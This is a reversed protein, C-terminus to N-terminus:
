YIVHSQAVTPRIITIIVLLFKRLNLYVFLMVPDSFYRRGRAYKVCLIETHNLSLNAIVTLTIGGNATKEASISGENTVNGTARVIRSSGNSFIVEWYANSDMNPDAIECAFFATTGEVVHQTQPQQLFEIFFYPLQMINYNHKLKKGVTIVQQLLATCLLLSLLM